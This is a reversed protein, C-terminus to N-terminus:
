PSSRHDSGLDACGGGDFSGPKFRCAARGADGVWKGGVWLLLGSISLTFIEKRTPKIRSKALKAWTILILGGILTRYVGLTFPPFGSGERVAIRIALYTSSWILYVIGLHMLGTPNLKKAETSNTM